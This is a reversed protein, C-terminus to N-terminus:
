KEKRLVELFSENWFLVGCPALIEDGNWQLSTPNCFENSQHQLVHHEGHNESNLIFKNRKISGLYFSNFYSYTKVLNEFKFYFLFFFFSLFINLFFILIPM